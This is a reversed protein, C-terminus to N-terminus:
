CSSITPNAEYQRKRKKWRILLHQGRNANVTRLQGWSGLEKRRRTARREHDRQTPAPTIGQARHFACSLAGFCGHATM